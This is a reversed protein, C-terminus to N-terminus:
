MLEERCPEKERVVRVDVRFPRCRVHRSFLPDHSFDASDKTIRIPDGCECCTRPQNPMEKWSLSSNSGGSKARRTYTKSM